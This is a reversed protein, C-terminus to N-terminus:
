RWGRLLIEALPTLLVLDAAARVHLADLRHRNRDLWALLLASLGISALFLAPPIAGLALAFSAGGLALTFLAIPLRIGVSIGSDWHEILWCNLWALLFCAAVPAILTAFGGLCRMAAPAACVLAFILGVFTEKTLLRRWGVPRAAPTSLKSRGHIAAFYVLAALALVSDRQRFAAPMERLVLVVATLFNLIALPLLVSRHRWHFWHRARLPALARKADMLRDALYIAWTGLGLAIPVWLPLTVHVLSALAESWCIAVTPADLSALHWAALWRNRGPRDACTPCIASQLGPQSSERLLEVAQNYPADFESVATQSGADM